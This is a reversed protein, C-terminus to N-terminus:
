RGRFAVIAARYDVAQAYSFTAAYPGAAAGTGDETFLADCCSNNAFSQRLTYGTGATASVITGDSHTTAGFLLENAQGTPATTGSTAASGSAGQHATQDVVSSTAAGSYEHIAVSLNGASALSATVTFGSGGSVNAAYWVSLPQTGSTPPSPDEVAKTYVNGFNDSVGSVTATNSGNWSAIAVVILDGGQVPSAFTAAQSTV